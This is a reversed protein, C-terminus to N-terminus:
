EDGTQRRAGFPSIAKLEADALPTGAFNCINLRALPGVRYMGKEYANDAGNVVQSNQALPKYYPFKLYSWPQVAEGIIERFREPQLGPELVNGESDIVRLLGDYHELGGEPTVLGLFLSPFNGYTQIEEDFKGFADKLLSLGLDVGAFADPLMAEIQRRKEDSLPERVGGAVSWAPHVSRGGLLRIVEQGFQRLRIGQRAVDPYRQILGVINRQAPDSEM